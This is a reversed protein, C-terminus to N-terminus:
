SPVLWARVLSPHRRTGHFRVVFSGPKLRIVPGLSRGVTTFMSKPFPPPTRISKVRIFAVSRQSRYVFSSPLCYLQEGHSPRPRRHRFPRIEPSRRVAATTGQVCARTITHINKRKLRHRAAAVSPPRAKQSEAAVQGCEPARDRALTILVGSPIINIETTGAPGTRRPITYELRQKARASSYHILSRRTHPNVSFFLGLFNIPPLKKHVPSIRTLTRVLPARYKCLEFATRYGFLSHSLPRKRRFM